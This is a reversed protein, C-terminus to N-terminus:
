VGLLTDLHFKMNFDFTFANSFTTQLINAMKNLGWYMLENIGLSVYTDTFLATMPESLPKDGSRHWANDSGM